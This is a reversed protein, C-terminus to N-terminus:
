EPTLTLSAPNVSPPNVSPVWGVVQDQRVATNVTEEHSYVTASVFDLQMEVFRKSQLLLTGFFHGTRTENSHEGITRAHLVLTVTFNTHSAVVSPTKM